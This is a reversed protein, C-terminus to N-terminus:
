AGKGHFNQIGSVILVTRCCYIFQVTILPVDTVTSLTM